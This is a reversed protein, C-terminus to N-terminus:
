DMNNWINVVHFYKTKLLHKKKNIRVMNTSNAGINKLRYPSTLHDVGKWGGLHMFRAVLRSWVCLCVHCLACVLVLLTFLYYCRLLWPLCVQGQKEGEMEVRPGCGWVDSVWYREGLLVVGVAGGKVEGLPDPDFWDCM